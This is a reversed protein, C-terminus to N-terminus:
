TISVSAPDDSVIISTHKAVPGVCSPSPLRKERCDTSVLVLNILCDGAMLRADFSTLRCSERLGMRKLFTLAAQWADIVM